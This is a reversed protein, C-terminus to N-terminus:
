KLIKWIKDIYAKTPLSAMIILSGRRESINLPFNIKEVLIECPKIYNVENNVKEFLNAVLEYHTCGLVVNKCKNEKMIKTIKKTLKSKDFYDNEIHKALTIPTTNLNPYCKSTLRTCLIKCNVCNFENLDLTIIPVKFIKPLNYCTISATNCALIILKIDYNDILYNCIEQIRNKIFSKTKNGYPMNINDAYYIYNENIYKTRLAKLLALGGIGSDILAICNNRSIKM